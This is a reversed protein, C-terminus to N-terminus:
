KYYIKPTLHVSNDAEDAEGREMSASETSKPTKSKEREKDKKGKEKNGKGKPPVGQHTAPKDKKTAEGAVVADGKKNALIKKDIEDTEDEDDYEDIGENLDEEEIAKREREALCRCLCVFFFFRLFL